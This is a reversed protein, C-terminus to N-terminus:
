SNENRIEEPNLLNLRRLEKYAVYLSLFAKLLNSVFPIQSYTFGGTKKNLFLIAMDVDDEGLLHHYAHVQLLYDRTLKTTNSTKIDVITKKGNVQAILDITGVIGEKRISVESKMDKLGELSKKWEQWGRYGNAVEDYNEKYDFAGVQQQHGTEIEKEILSHVEKGTQLIKEMDKVFPKVRKFDSVLSIIETVHLDEKMLTEHERQGEVAELMSM